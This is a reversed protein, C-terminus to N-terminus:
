LKISKKIYKELDDITNYIQGKYIIEGNERMLANYTRAHDIMYHLSIPELTCYENDYEFAIVQFFKINFTDTDYWIIVEKIKENNNPIITKVM